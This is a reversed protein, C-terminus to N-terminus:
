SKRPLQNKTKPMERNPRSYWSLALMVIFLFFASLVKQLTGLMLASLGFTSSLALTLLLIHRQSWGKALLRHHLHEGSSSGRFPSVGKSIRRITVLIVDVLPVGLVLFATAVKGGSYIGLLGLMLGFFMAGTDGAVVRPPPFDFLLSGTAIGCLLMAIAALRPQNVAPSLSLVALVFFAVVSVLHVQGPIGDFWNLANITLGIWIITFIASLVPLPGFSSTFLLISDLKLIGTPLMLTYIRTGTVFLLLAILAHVILRFPAPLPTRDDVFSFTALSVVGLMVGLRQYTDPEIFTYLGLFALVALIGTPYPLRRRRLGYREPFDLLGFYPFLRLSALSLVTVLLAGAAFSLLIQM